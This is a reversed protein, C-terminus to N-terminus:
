RRSAPAHLVEKAAAVNKLNRYLWIRREGIVGAQRMMQVVPGRQSQAFLGGILAALSDGQASADLVLVLGDNSGIKDAPGEWLDYQNSRSNLNLSFVQPQDHLHFALESADQYRDAAAWRTNTSDLFPGYRQEDVAGALKDWGYARAIPDKPPAIPFVPSWVQVIALLLVVIAFWTGGKWWRQRSWRDANTALLVIAAPYALAPWNAEVSHRWASFAFFATITTAIAAFAFRKAQASNNPVELRNRWARLIAYTVAVIMLVALIPTALGLQGGIMELERNIPNGRAASSLGHNLQFRFSIWDNNANWRVVPAFCVLAIISALWPGPERLRVRLPAYVICAAVLAGPLLVAAYKSVFAIGLAVGTLLWWCLSARSKVPANLARELCLLAVSASALLPADPTALVLGLTALPLLTMIMAARVGDRANGLRVALVTLSVHMVLACLAPGARIGLRNNGFLATGGRILLAIGPPHDFYGAQLHRTWDWYYTEDPLLPVRSAILTRVAFAGAIWVASM